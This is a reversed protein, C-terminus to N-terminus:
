IRTTERREISFHDHSIKQRGADSVGQFGRSARADRGRISLRSTPLKRMDLSILGTQSRKMSQFSELSDFDLEAHAWLLSENYNDRAYTHFAENYAKFPCEDLNEVILFGKTAQLIEELSRPLMSLRPSQRSTRRLLRQLIDFDVGQEYEFHSMAAIAKLGVERESEPQQEIQRIGADFIAAISRPLRDAVVIEDPTSMEHVIELRLRAMAINSWSQFEIEDILEKLKDRNRRKNFAKGLGSLPPKASAISNLGLDGHNSELDWVIYDIMQKQGVLGIDLDRYEYPEVFENNNCKHCNEGREQCAACLVFSGNPCIRCEWYVRLWDADCADCFTKLPPEQRCQIRSTLMIKIGLERLKALEDELFLEAMENCKDFDDLILFVRDFTSICSHLAQRLLRLREANRQRLECATLYSKYSTLVESNNTIGPHRSCLQRFISIMFDEIFSAANSLIDSKIFISTVAQKPHNFRLRLNEAALASVTTKGSGPGGFCRLMWRSEKKQWFEFVESKFVWSFLYDFTDPGLYYHESIAPHMRHQGLLEWVLPTQEDEPQIVM